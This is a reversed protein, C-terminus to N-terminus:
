ITGIQLELLDYVTKPGKKEFDISGIASGLDHIDFKSNLMNSYKGFIKIKDKLSELNDLNRAKQIHLFNQNKTQEYLKNAVIREVVRGLGEGITQYGLSGKTVNNKEDMIEHAHEHASGIIISEFNDKPMLIRSQGNSLNVEKIYTEKKLYPIIAGSGMAILSIIAGGLIDIGEITYTNNSIHNYTEFAIKSVAGLQIARAIIAAPNHYNPKIKPPFKLKYDCIEEALEKGIIAAEKADKKSLKKSHKPKPLKKIEDKERKIIDELLSENNIVYKVLYNMSFSM